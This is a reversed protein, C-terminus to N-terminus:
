NSSSITTLYIADATPKASAPSHCKGPRSLNKTFSGKRGCVVLALHSSDLTICIDWELLRPWAPQSRAAQPKLFAPLWSPALLCCVLSPVPSAAEGEAKITIPLIEMCKWASNHWLNVQSWIPSSGAPFAGLSSPSSSLPCSPPGSELGSM